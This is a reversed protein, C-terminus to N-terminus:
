YTLDGTLESNTRILSAESFRLMVYWFQNHDDLKYGEQLWKTTFILMRVRHFDVFPSDRGMDVTGVKGPM